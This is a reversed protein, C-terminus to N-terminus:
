LVICNTYGCRGSKDMVQVRVFHDKETIQYRAQELGNGTFVRKCWLCDSFFVIEDCPSCRVVIEDGERWAHVEPGQTAYFRGERIARLLAEETCEEAEVMIWAYCQDGDYYHTDDDAVLPFFCGQAGLMDVILSSDPRRSMHVNSVSNYIETADVGSLAMIQAPSNLSWAPHALIVTGGAKKILDITQQTTSSLEIQPDYPMGLGLIHFHGDRADAVRSDYEVGSIILLGNEAKEQPHYVWHDTIAIADYGTERYLRIVEDPTKAGDTVTTHTHLNVRYRTKGFLDKQM